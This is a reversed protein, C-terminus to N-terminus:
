KQIIYVIVFVYMYKNLMEKPTFLKYLELNDAPMQELM